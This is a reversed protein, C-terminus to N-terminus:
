ILEILGILRVKWNKFDMRSKFKLYMVNIPIGHYNTLHRSYFFYDSFEKKCNKVLCEFKKEFNAM